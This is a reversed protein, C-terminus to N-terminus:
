WHFFLGVAPFPETTTKTSDIGKIVFSFYNCHDNFNFEIFICDGFNESVFVPDESFYVNVYVDFAPVNSFITKWWLLKSLFNDGSIVEVKKDYNISKINKSDICTILSQLKPFKISIQKQIKM